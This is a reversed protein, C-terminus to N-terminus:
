RQGKARCRGIEDRELWGEAVGRNLLNMRAKDHGAPLGYQEWLRLDAFDYPSSGLSVFMSKLQDRMGNDWERDLAAQKQTKAKQVASEDNWIEGDKEDEEAQASTPASKLKFGQLGRDRNNGLRVSKFGRLKLKTTLSHQTVRLEGKDERWSDCDGFYEDSKTKFSLGLDCHEGLWQGIMDQDDFYEETAGIVEPPPQLGNKQWDLSGNISWRLIGPLEALLKKKLDAKKEAPIVANLPCLHLRRRFGKDVKNLSPANNTALWITHTPKFDHFNERMGRTTITDGGTLAKIQGENFERGESSESSVALRLGELKATETPHRDRKGSLLATFPIVGGYTGFVALLTEMLTGKGNEGEGLLLAFMEEKVSGTLSYGALRKIYGIMAPPLIDSLFKLFLPCDEQASPVAGAYKTIFDERKANRMEGTLLDVVKGGPVGLIFPDNDWTVKATGLLDDVISRVNRIKLASELEKILKSLYESTSADSQPDAAIARLPKCKEHCLSYIALNASSGDDDSWTRTRANWVRGNVLTGRLRNAFEQALKLDTFDLKAVRHAQVTSEQVTSKPNESSASKKNAEFVDDYLREDDASNYSAKCEDYLKARTKPETYGIELYRAARQRRSKEACHDTPPESANAVVTPNPVTTQNDVTVQNSM